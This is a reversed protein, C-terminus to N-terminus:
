IDPWAGMQDQPHPRCAHASPRPRKWEIAFSNDIAVGAASLASVASSSLTKLFTNGVVYERGFAYNWGDGGSQLIGRDLFALFQVHCVLVKDTPVQLQRLTRCWTFHHM